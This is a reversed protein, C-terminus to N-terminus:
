RNAELLGKEDEMSGCGGLAIGTTEVSFEGNSLEEDMSAPEEIRFGIPKHGPIYWEGTM